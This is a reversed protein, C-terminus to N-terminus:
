FLGQRSPDRNVPTKLVGARDVPMAKEGREAGAEAGREARQGARKELKSFPLLSGSKRGGLDFGKGCSM